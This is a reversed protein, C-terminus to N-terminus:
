MSTRKPAPSLAACRAAKSVAAARQPAMMLASMGDTTTSPSVTSSMLISASPTSISWAPM